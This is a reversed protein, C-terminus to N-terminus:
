NNVSHLSNMGGDPLYPTTIRGICLFGGVRSRSVATM